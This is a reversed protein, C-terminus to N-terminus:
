YIKDHFTNVILTIRQFSRFHCLSSLEKKAMDIREEIYIYINKIYRKPTISM